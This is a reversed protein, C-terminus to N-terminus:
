HQRQDSFIKAGREVFGRFWTRIGDELLQTLTSLHAKSGLFELRSVLSINLSRAMLPLTFTTFSPSTRLSGRPGSGSPLQLMTKLSLLAPIPHTSSFM